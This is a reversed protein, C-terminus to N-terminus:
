EVEEKTPFVISNLTHLLCKLGRPSGLLCTFDRSPEGSISAEFMICSSAKGLISTDCFCHKKNILLSLLIFVM